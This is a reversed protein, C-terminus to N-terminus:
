GLTEGTGICKDCTSFYIEKAARYYIEMGSGNCLDCETTAPYILLDEPTVGFLRSVYNIEVLQSTTVSMNEIKAISGCALRRYSPLGVPTRCYSETIRTAVAAICSSLIRGSRRYRFITALLDETDCERIHACRILACVDTPVFEALVRSILQDKIHLMEDM